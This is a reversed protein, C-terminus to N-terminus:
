LEELETIFDAKRKTYEMFSKKHLDRFHTAEATAESHSEKLRHLEDELKKFKRTLQRVERQLDRIMSKLPIGESLLLAEVPCQRQLVLADHSLNIGSSLFFSFSVFFLSPPDETFIFRAENILYVELILSRLFM